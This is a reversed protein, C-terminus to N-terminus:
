RLKSSSPNAVMKIEKRTNNLTGPLTGLTLESAIDSQLRIACRFVNYSAETSETTAADFKASQHRTAQLPSSM